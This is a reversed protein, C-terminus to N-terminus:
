TAVKKNAQKLADAENTASMSRKRGTGEIMEVDDLSPTLFQRDGADGLGPIIMGEASLEQDIAGVHITIDPHEEMLAEIGKRAALASVVIIKRSGWRKLISVVARITSGTAIMPDLVISVDAVQDRPLRNYYQVPLLSGKNRYMGIHHVAANPLLEMMAEAMGLGARLIPIIAIKEAIKFGQAPGCPTTVDINQVM